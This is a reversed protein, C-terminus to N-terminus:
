VRVMPKNRRLILPKGIPSYGTTLRGHHGFSTEDLSVFQVGDQKLRNRMQLFAKTKDELNKPESFFKAKKKSYGNTKIVTRLLEKSVDLSLVEKMINKLFFMSVFPNSQIALRITYPLLSQFLYYTHSSLLRRDLPYVTERILQLMIRQDSHLMSRSVQFM